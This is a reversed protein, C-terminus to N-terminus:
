APEQEAIQDEVEARLETLNGSWPLPIVAYPLSSGRFYDPACIDMIRVGIAVNLDCSQRTLYEAMNETKM